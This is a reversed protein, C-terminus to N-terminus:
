LRVVHTARAIATKTAEFLGVVRDYVTLWLVQSGGRPTEILNATGLVLGGYGILGSM